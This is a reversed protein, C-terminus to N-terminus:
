MTSAGRMAAWYAEEADEEEKEKLKKLLDWERSTFVEPWLDQAQMAKAKEGRHANYLTTHINALMRPILYM